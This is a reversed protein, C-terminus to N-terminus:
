KPKLARGRRRSPPESERPEGLRELARVQQAHVRGDHLPRLVHEHAHRHADVLLVHRARDFRVVQKRLPGDVTTKERWAVGRVAEGRAGLNKVWADGVSNLAPVGRGCIDDHKKIAIFSSEMSPM